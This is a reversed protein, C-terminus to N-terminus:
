SGVQWYNINLKKLREEELINRTDFIWSPKRMNESIIEWNIKKYEDWETLIVIADAEQSAIEIDSAFQWSGSSLNDIEFEEM